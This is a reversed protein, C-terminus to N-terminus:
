WSPEDARFDNGGGFPDSNDERAILATISQEILTNWAVLNPITSHLINKVVELEGESLVCENNEPKGEKNMIIRCSTGDENPIMSLTKTDGQMSTHSFTSEKCQSANSLLLGVEETNLAITVSNVWDTITSGEHRPAVEFIIKGKRGVNVNQNNRKFQPPVFKVAFTANDKFVTYNPFYRVHDNQNSSSSQNNSYSSFNKTLSQHTTPMFTQSKCNHSALNSKNSLAQSQPSVKRLLSGGIFKFNKCLSVPVRM